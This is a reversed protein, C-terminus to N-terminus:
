LWQPLFTISPHFHPYNKSLMQSSVHSFASLSLWSWVAYKHLRIPTKMTQKCSWQISSFLNVPLSSGSCVTSLTCASWFRIPSLSTASASFPRYPTMNNNRRNQFEKKSLTDETFPFPASQKENSYVGNWFPPLFLKSLTAEWSLTDM